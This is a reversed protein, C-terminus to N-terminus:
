TEHRSKDPFNLLDNLSLPTMLLLLPMAILHITVAIKFYFDPVTTM